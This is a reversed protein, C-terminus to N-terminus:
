SHGLHRSSIVPTTAPVRGPSSAREARTERERDTWKDKIEQSVKAIHEDLIAIEEASRPGNSFLYMIEDDRRNRPVSM